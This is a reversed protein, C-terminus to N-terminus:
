VPSFQFPQKSKPPGTPNRVFVMRLRTFISFTAEIQTTQSSKKCFGNEFPHFNFLNNRNPHDLLIEYLFWESVPSFQFPQKSKPPRTPNRVFVMRLRTFISFTAEIQTTQYSKKCFGNEFPHFNFLNNRNPHDLLIEYMFWERVPSFQFPQKSKRPRTPNRVFVM